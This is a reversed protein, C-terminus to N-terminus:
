CVRRCQATAESGETCDRRASLEASQLLRSGARSLTPNICGCSHGYWLSRPLAMLAPPRRSCAAQAPKGVFKSPSIPRNGLIYPKRGHQVACITQAVLWEADKQQRQVTDWRLHLVSIPM